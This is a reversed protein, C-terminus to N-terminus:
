NRTKGLEKEYARIIREAGLEILETTTFMKYHGFNDFLEQAWGPREMNPWFGTKELTKLDDSAKFAEELTFEKNLLDNVEEPTLKTKM